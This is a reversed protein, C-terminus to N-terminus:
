EEKMQGKLLALLTEGSVYYRGRIKTYPIEEEHVANWFTKYSLGLLQAAETLKYLKGEQIDKVM